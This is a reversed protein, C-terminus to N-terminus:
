MTNNSTEMMNCVVWTLKPRGNFFATVGVEWLLLVPNSTSFWKRFSRIRGDVITRDEKGPHPLDCSVVCIAPIKANYPPLLKSHLASKYYLCGPITSYNKKRCRLLMEPISCNFLVISQYLTNHEIGPHVPHVPKSCKEDRRVSWKQRNCIQATHCATHMGLLEIIPMEFCWESLTWDTNGPQALNLDARLATLYLIHSVLRNSNGLFPGGSASTGFFSKSFSEVWM